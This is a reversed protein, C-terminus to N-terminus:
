ANQLLSEALEREVFNMVLPQSQDPQSQEWTAYYGEDTELVDIYRSSGTGTPSVFLPAVVSLRESAALNCEPAVAAGSLEECSYGRPRTVAAKHEDLNRLSEGGDYFILTMPESDAFLGVSPVRLMATARSMAVDWTAGRPFFTYDPPGFAAAGAPRRTYGTNSSSWSFPHTCFGLVTEENGAGKDGVEYLFPDKVHLFQPDDCHLITEVPADALGAMSDATLREITWVGAGPKLFSELGAPYDIGAKETSVFLEILPKGARESIRLASGEISLVTREGVNLDSKSFSLIKQFSVGRDTSRFIALELGREGAALGTRSDGFNRYRGCLYFTGDADEVLNGGGFWFGSHPQMPPVIVRAAEQDIVAQCFRTLSNKQADTPM